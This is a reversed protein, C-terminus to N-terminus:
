FGGMVRIAAVETWEYRIKGGDSSIKVGQRDSELVLVSLRKGSDLLLRYRHKRDYVVRRILSRPIRYDGHRAQLLVQSKSEEWVLGSIRDGNSLLVEDGFVPSFAFALFFGANACRRCFWAATQTQEKKM